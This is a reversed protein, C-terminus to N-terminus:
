RYFPGRRQHTQLVWRTLETRSRLNTKTLINRVHSEVTRESLVLKSAVEKNSLGVAVLRAIERERATLPDKFRTAAAGQELLSEADWLVGPMDLRRADAAAARAQELSRAFDGKAHFARALALRGRAVYPQGGLNADISPALSGKYFVTGIGMAATGAFSETIVTRLVRCGVADGLM